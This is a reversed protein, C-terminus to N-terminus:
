DVEGHTCLTKLLPYFTKSGFSELHSMETNDIDACDRRAGPTPKVGKGDPSNRVMRGSDALADDGSGRYNPPPIHGTEACGCISCLFM